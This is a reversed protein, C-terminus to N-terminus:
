PSGQLERCNDCFFEQEWGLYSHVAKADTAIGINKLFRLGERNIADQSRLLPSKDDISEGLHTVFACPIRLVHDYIMPPSARDWTTFAAARHTARLGGNPFSSGDTEGVFLREYPFSAEFPKISEKSSWELDIFADQKLAGLTGGPAGGGGRMPFFWHAYAVAGNKKAWLFMSTAIIIQDEESTDEGSIVCAKFRNFVTNGVAAKMTADDWVTTSMMDLNVDGCGRASLGNQLIKLPDDLTGNEDLVLNASMSLKVKNNGNDNGGYGIKFDGLSNPSGIPSSPVSASQPRGEPRKGSKSECGCAAGM